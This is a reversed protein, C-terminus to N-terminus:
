CSVAPRPLATPRAFAVILPPRRSKPCHGLRRNALRSREEPSALARPSLPEEPDARGALRSQLFDLRRFQGLGRDNRGRRQREVLLRLAEPTYRWYDHPYQHIPNIFCTTHCVLGGPKLVRFSEDFAVFPSGRVHELVQDSVIADFSADAFPLDLISADPYAANTISADKFGLCRALPQSDSISLVREGAVHPITENALAQYMAFRTIHPGRAQGIITLKYLAKALQRAFSTLRAM